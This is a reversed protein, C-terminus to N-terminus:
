LCALTNLNNLQDTAKSQLDSLQDMTTTNLTNVLSHLKNLQDTITTNLTNVSSQLNIIQNTESAQSLQQQLQDNHLQQIKGQLQAIERSYFVTVSVIATLLLAQLLLM